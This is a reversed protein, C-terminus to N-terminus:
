MVHMYHVLSSYLALFLGKNHIRVAPINCKFIFVRIRARMLSVM